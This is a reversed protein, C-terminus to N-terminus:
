RKVIRYEGPLYFYPGKQIVFESNHWDGIFEIKISFEKKTAPILGANNFFYYTGIYNYRPIGTNLSYSTSFVSVVGKNDSIEKVGDCIFPVIVNGASDIVGWKKTNITVLNGTFFAETSNKEIKKSCELYHISDMQHYTIFLGGFISFLTDYKVKVREFTLSNSSQITFTEDQHKVEAIEHNKQSSGNYILLFFPVLFFNYIRM